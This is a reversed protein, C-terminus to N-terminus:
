RRVPSPASAPTPLDYSVLAPAPHHRIAYLKHRAEDVELAVAAADLRLVEVLRANWDYVHVLEGFSAAGPFDARKRGSYLAYVRSPTAALDIYGFRMEEGSAMAPQGGRESVEYVPEFSELRAAAAVRSGDVRLIEFRDAHRTAVALLPRAPHARVTSQYAHQRVQLPTTPDGPPEGGVFDRVRGAPDIRALRGGQAFFGPSVLLTDGSWVPSVLGTSADIQVSREGYRKGPQFDAALDIRTLRQLALDFIWFASASGPEPDLSWAARFEGPGGGERGFRRQLAGSHADYVHVASDGRNNLLVLHGGVRALDTPAALDDGADVITATLTRAAQTTAPSRKAATDSSCATAFLFCIFVRPLLTTPKAM